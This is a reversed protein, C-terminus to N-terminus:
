WLWAVPYRQIMADATVLTLGEEVAQAVLMRDFPDGHHFPLRSLYRLHRLEISLLEIGIRQAMHEPADQLRLRGLAQKIGMEWISAYSLRVEQAAKIADKAQRSLRRSDNSFWLFAHSDLLLKM